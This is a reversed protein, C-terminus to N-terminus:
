RHGYYATVLLYAANIEQARQRARDQEDTPANVYRDPHWQSILRRYAAKVVVADRGADLELVALAEAVETPVNPTPPEAQLEEIIRRLEDDEDRLLREAWDTSSTSADNWYARAIRSMRDFIQGM